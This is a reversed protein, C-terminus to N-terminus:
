RSLKKYSKVQRRSSPYATAIEATKTRASYTYFITLYRDAVGIAVYQNGGVKKYVPKDEMLAKEVEDPLVSHKEYIKAVVEQRIRVNRILLCSVTGIGYPASRNLDKQQNNSQKVCM